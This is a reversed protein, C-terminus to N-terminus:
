DPVFEVGIFPLIPTGVIDEDFGRPHEDDINFERGEVNRRNTVNVIDAFAGITGWDRQWRRDIRVDLHFFPPLRGGFPDPMPIAADPDTPSYPNGSVFQVRAGFRWAGLKVSAALNLNHRQDLEFPRWGLPEGGADREAPSRRQSWSLTYSLLVFLRETSRKVLFEVGLQRARGENQRYSSFGLQKELLLQFTPGLGGLNPELPDGGQAVPVGIDHGYAVFSTLAGFWTSLEADLGLSAQDMYSSNLEPNGDNPDVDAPIPPQHYRGIAQRLTLTSSLRQHINLRPDLVLERSIGYYDARLGPKLSFRDGDLKVRTETWLALDTWALTSGTERSSGNMAVETRSLYGADVDLGGRLHGWAYDRLLETRVGGPVSPRSFTDDGDDEHESFSLQNWGIWPVIRLAFPGWTRLYPVAARVFLSTATIDESTVRDISTFIMPSFRGCRRADGFSTRLQADWYSPLPVDEDVFPGVVTDLYSRRVGVLVGGGLVPGEAFVSSDLLGISGGARWLDRRPERTTLTVLGGQARGHAVDFGGSTVTLDALMSGPYFATIGGFHFALPVEVGDLYISTDRPSTGRLVLGGFAFPIRSVGPLVQAARLIDNAAGPLFRIEDATLQYSLPKTQEPAKGSVEIVENGRAPVLEIRLLRDSSTSQITRTTYGPAVVTLEGGGPTDGVDLSFYGDNDSVVVDGRETFITAGVIFRGTDRATVVGRVVRPSAVAMGASAIIAIALGLRM